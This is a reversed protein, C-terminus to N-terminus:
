KMRGTLRLMDPYYEYEWEYRGMERGRLGGLSAVRLYDRQYRGGGLMAYNSHIPLDYMALYAFIEQTTWESLPACTKETSVGWRKGRMRRVASEQMRIGSIHRDTKLNAIAMDFGQELTGSALWGRPGRECEVEYERYDSKFREFYADRVLLCYPNFIPKVKVWVFPISLEAQFILHALVLSDKGWSVGAYAPGRSLFELVDRAAVDAMRRLRDGHRKAYLRDAAELSRWARLDADTLRDCLILSLNLVETRHQQYLADM